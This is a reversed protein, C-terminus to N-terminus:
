NMHMDRIIDYLDKVQAELEKIKDNRSHMQKDIYSQLYATIGMPILVVVILLLLIIVIIEMINM